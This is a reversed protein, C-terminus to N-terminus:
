YNCGCSSCSPCLIWGCRKCLEMTENLRKRCKKSHCRPTRGDHMLESSHVHKPLIEGPVRVVCIDKHVKNNEYDNSEYIIDIKGKYGEEKHRVTQGVKLMIIAGGLKRYYM